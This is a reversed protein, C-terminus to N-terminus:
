PTVTYPKVHGSPRSAHEIFLFVTTSFFPFTPSCPSFSVLFLCFGEFRKSRQLWRLEASLCEVGIESCLGCGQAQESGAFANAKFRGKAECTIM